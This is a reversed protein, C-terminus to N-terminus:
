NSFKWNNVSLNIDEKPWTAEYVIINTDEEEVVLTVSVNNSSVGSFLQRIAMEDITLLGFQNAIIDSVSAKNGTIKLVKYQELIQVQPLSDLKDLDNDYYTLIKEEENDNLKLILNGSKDISAYERLDIGVNKYWERETILFESPEQGFLAMTLDPSISYTSKEQCGSLVVCLFISFILIFSLMKKM